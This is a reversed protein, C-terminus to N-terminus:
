LVDSHYALLLPFIQDALDLPGTRGGEAIGCVAISDVDDERSQLVGEM